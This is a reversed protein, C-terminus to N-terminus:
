GGVRVAGKGDKQEFVFSFALSVAVPEEKGTVCGQEDPKAGPYVCRFAPDFRWQAAAARAAEVFRPDSGIACGAQADDIPQSDMVRGDAGIAVRLCVTQPALRQALLEAPYVPVANAAEALPMQFTENDALQMRDDSPMLKDISRVGVAGSRPDSVPEVSRPASACGALAVLLLAPM